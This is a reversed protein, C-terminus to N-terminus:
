CSSNESFINAGIGGVGGLVGDCRVSALVGGWISSAM